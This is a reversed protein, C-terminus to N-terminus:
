TSFTIISCFLRLHLFVGARKLFEHHKVLFHLHNLQSNEFIQLPITYKGRLLKFNRRFEQNDYSLVIDVFSSITPIAWREIMAVATKLLLAEADSDESYEDSLSSSSEGFYQTCVTLIVMDETEIDDDAM